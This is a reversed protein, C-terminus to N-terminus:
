GQGIRIVWLRALEATGDSATISKFIQVAKDKQRAYLYAMALKLKADEPLKFGGKAIDREILAIGKEFQGHLVLNFGTNVPTVGTKAVEARKEDQARTKLDEAMGKNAQDRLKKHRTESPGVGLLGDAYGQDIVKKAEAPFGAQIALEAAELVEDTGDPVLM